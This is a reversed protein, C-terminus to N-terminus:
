VAEDNTQGLDAVVALMNSRVHCPHLTEDGMLDVEAQTDAPSRSFSSGSFLSGPPTMEQQDPELPLPDSTWQDDLNTSTRRTEM